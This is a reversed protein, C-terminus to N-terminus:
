QIYTKYSNDLYEHGGKLLDSHIVELYLFNGDYLLYIKYLKRSSLDAINCITSSM